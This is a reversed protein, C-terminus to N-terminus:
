KRKVDMRFVKRVAKSADFQSSDFAFRWVAGRGEKECDAFEAHQSRVIVPAPVDDEAAILIFYETASAAGSLISAIKFDTTPTPGLKVLTGKKAVNGGIKVDRLSGNSLVNLLRFRVTRDAKVDFRFPEDVAVAGSTKANWTFRLEFPDLSGSGEAAYWATLPTKPSGARAGTPKEFARVKPGCPSEGNKKLIADLEVLSKMDAALPSGPALVDALWDGRLFAAPRAFKSGGLFKDVRVDREVSFPNELLILDFPVIAVAGNDEGRPGVQHFLDAAAWGLKEIDIRFVTAAEDVPQLAFARERTTAADLAKQLRLQAPELSAFERDDRISDALSIYRINAPTPQLPWDAAIAELVAAEDFSRPYRPAKAAVWKKLIALEGDSPRARGGPPMSGDEIFEIIQSRDPDALNVFPVPRNKEALQSYDLSNFSRPAMGHCERCYKRLIARSQIALDGRQRPTPEAAAASTGCLAVIAVVRLV